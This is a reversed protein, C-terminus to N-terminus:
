GNALREQLRAHRQVGESDGFDELEYQQRLELHVHGDGDEVPWRKVWALADALSPVDIITFGAVMEKAETFPGDIVRPKGGQFEIRAGYRSPKLGAGDRLVGADVLQENYAAMAQILAETPQMEAETDADAKRIIM